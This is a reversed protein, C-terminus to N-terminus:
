SLSTREKLPRIAYSLSELIKEDTTQNDLKILFAQNPVKKSKKENYSKRQLDFLTKIAVSIKIKSLLVMENLEKPKKNGEVTLKLENQLINILPLVPKEKILNAQFHHMYNKKSAASGDFYNNLEQFDVAKGLVRAVAKQSLSQSLVFATNYHGKNLARTAAKIIKQAFKERETSSPLKLIFEGMLTLIKNYHTLYKHYHPVVDGAVKESLINLDLEDGTISAVDAEVIHRLDKHIQKASRQALDYSPDEALQKPPSYKQDALETILNKLTEGLLQVSPDETKKASESLQFFSFYLERKELSHFFLNKQEILFAISIGLINQLIAPKRDTKEEQKSLRDFEKFLLERVEKLKEDYSYGYIFLNIFHIDGDLLKRFFANKDMTEWNDKPKEKSEVKGYSFEISELAKKQMTKQFDSEPFPIIINKQIDTIIRGIPEEDKFLLTGNQFIGNLKNLLFEVAQSVQEVTAKERPILKIEDKELIPVRVPERDLNICQSVLRDIDKAIKLDEKLSGKKKEKLSQQFARSLKAQNELHLNNLQNLIFLSFGNSEIKDKTKTPEEKNFIRATMKSFTSIYTQSTSPDSVKSLNLGPRKGEINM